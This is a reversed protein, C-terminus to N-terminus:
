ISMGAILEKVDDAESSGAFRKAGYTSISGEVVMEFILSAFFQPDRKHGVLKPILKFENGAGDNFFKNNCTMHKPFHYQTTMLLEKEPEEYEALIKLHSTYAVDCGWVSQPQGKSVKAAAMKRWHVHFKEVENRDRKYAPIRPSTVLVSAFDDALRASYHKATYDVLDINQLKLCLKNCSVGDGKVEKCLLPFINGETMKPEHLNIEYSHLIPVRHSSTSMVTSSQHPLKTISRRQEETSTSSDVSDISEDELKEITVKDKKKSVPTRNLPTTKTPTSNTSNSNNSHLRVFDEKDSEVKSALKSLSLEYLHSIFSDPDALFESRLYNKRNRTTVRLKDNHSGLLARHRNAYRYFNLYRHSIQKLKAKILCAIKHPNSQGNSNSPNFNQICFM